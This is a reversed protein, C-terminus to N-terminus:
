IDKNWKGIIIPLLQALGNEYLVANAPMSTGPQGRQYNLPIISSTGVTICDGNIEPTHTHGFVGKGYGRKMGQPSGKAGNEGKHGHVGLQYGNLIFGEDLDLCHINKPLSKGRLRNTKDESAILELGKQIPNKKILLGSRLELVFPTDNWPEEVFQFNTLYRRVFDPSHNSYVFYFNTKPFQKAMKKIFMEYAESFETKIDLKGERYAIAREITDEREHPNMSHGDLADHLFVNKPSFFEMMEFSANMTDHNEYGLHID